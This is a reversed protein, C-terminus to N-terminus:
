SKPLPTILRHLAADDYDRRFRIIVQNERFGMKSLLPVLTRTASERAAAVLGYSNLHRMISDQGQQALRNIEEDSFSSRGLSVYERVKAHNIKSATVEINPDPLTVILFSDTYHVNVASFRTFDIYAKLTVDIPVAAKRYGPLSFNLLKGGVRTKEDMMVVKHVQFQTTYLRNQRRVQLVLDQMREQASREPVATTEQASESADSSNSKTCSIPLLTLLTGGLLFLFASFKRMAHFKHQSLFCFYRNIKM